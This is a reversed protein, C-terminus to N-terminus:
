FLYVTGQIIPGILLLNQTNEIFVLWFLLILDDPCPCQPLSNIKETKLKRNTIILSNISISFLIKAEQELRQRGGELAFTNVSSSPLSQSVPTTHCNAAISSATKNLSTQHSDPNLFNNEEEKEFMMM